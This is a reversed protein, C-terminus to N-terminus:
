VGRRLSDEVRTASSFASFWVGRGVGFATAPRVFSLFPVLRYGDVGGFRVSGVSLRLPGLV